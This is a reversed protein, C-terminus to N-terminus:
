ETGLARYQGSASARCTPMRRGIQGLIIVIRRCRNPVFDDRLSRPVRGALGAPPQQPHRADLGADALDLGFQGVVLVALAVDDDALELDDILARELIVVEVGRGAGGLQLRPEGADTPRRRRRFVSLPPM